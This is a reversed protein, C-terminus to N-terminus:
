RRYEPSRTCDMGVKMIVFTTAAAVLTILMTRYEGFVMAMAANIILLVVVVGLLLTTTMVFYNLAERLFYQVRTPKMKNPM